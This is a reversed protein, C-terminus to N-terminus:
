VPNRYKCIYHNKMRSKGKYDFCDGFIFHYYLDKPSWIWNHSNQFCSRFQLKWRHDQFERGTSNEWKNKWIILFM